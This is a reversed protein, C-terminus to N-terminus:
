AWTRRVMALPRIYTGGCPEYDRPPKKMGNWVSGIPVHHSAIRLMLPELSEGLNEDGDDMMFFNEQEDPCDM